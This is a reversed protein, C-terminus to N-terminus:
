GMGLRALSYQAMFKPISDLCKSVWCRFLVSFLVSFLFDFLLCLSFDHIWLRFPIQTMWKMKPKSVQFSIFHRLIASRLRGRNKEVREGEGIKEIWGWRGNLGRVKEEVERRGRRQREAAGSGGGGCLESGGGTFSEVCSCLLNKLEM